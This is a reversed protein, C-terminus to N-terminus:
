QAAKDWYRRLGRFSQWLPAAREYYRAEGVEDELDARAAEVFAEEDLGQRVRQGWLRLQRRLRRLHDRPQDVVGFHILALREPARLELEDSAPTSTSRPRRRSPGSTGTPCSGCAQQM